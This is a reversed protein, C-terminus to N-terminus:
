PLFQGKQLRQQLKLVIRDDASSSLRVPGVKCAADIAHSSNESSCQGEMACTLMSPCPVVVCTAVDHPSVPSIDLIPPIIHLSSNRLLLVADIGRFVLVLVKLLPKTIQVAQKNFNIYSRKGRSRSRMISALYNATIQVKHSQVARLLKKCPLSVQHSSTLNWVSNIMKFLHFNM